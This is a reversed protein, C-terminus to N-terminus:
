FDEGLVEGGGRTIAGHLTVKSIKKNLTRVSGDAFGVICGDGPFLGLLKTMDVHNSAPGVPPEALPRLAKVLAEMM